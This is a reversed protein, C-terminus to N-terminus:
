TLNVERKGLKCSQGALLTEPQFPLSKAARSPPPAHVHSTRHDAFGEGHGLLAGQEVGSNANQEAFV